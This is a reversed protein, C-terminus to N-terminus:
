DHHVLIIMLPMPPCVNDVVPFAIFSHELKLFLFCCAVRSECLGFVPKRGVM